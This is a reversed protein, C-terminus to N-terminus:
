LDGLIQAKLTQFRQVANSLMTQVNQYEASLNQLQLVKPPIAPDDPNQQRLQDIEVILTRIQTDIANLQNSFGLWTSNLQVLQAASPGAYPAVDLTVTVTTAGGLGDSVTVTFTDSLPGSLLAEVQAEKTPTYTFSGDQAVILTGHGGVFDGSYILPDRDPDTVGLDGTVVGTSPDTNPEIDPDTVTPADNVNSVTLTFAVTVSEGSTDTAIVTISTTGVDANAPTGTFTRTAGNFILWGPLGSATYALTDGEPDIFTSTPVQYNFPTDETAVQDPIPASVIPADNTDAVTLAFADAATEGRTDTAVVTVTITGVDSDTPTGTFARTAGDFSLWGPLGSTTYTLPDGEADTFATAPVQYNFPEDETATQDPIPTAVTPATNPAETITIAVTATRAHGAGFLGALGHFHFGNDVATISVTDAGTFDADALYTYTGDGNASLTGHTGDTTGFTLPDGDPDAADLRLTIAVKGEPTFSTAVVRATGVTPTENGVFSEIRRYAGWLAELIPNNTQGPAPNPSFGFVGLVGLVFNRIPQLPAAAPAPDVNTVVSVTPLHPPVVVAAAAFTTAVPAPPSSAAIRSEPTSDVDTTIANASLRQLAPHETTHDPSTVRNDHDATDIPEQPTAVVPQAASGKADAITAPEEAPAKSGNTQANITVTPSDGVSVSTSSQAGPALSAVPSSSSGSATPPDVSPTVADTSSATTPANTPGQPDAGLTGGDPTSTASTASVNSADVDDAWAIHPGGIVSGIGLAVALAGVRGVYKACSM